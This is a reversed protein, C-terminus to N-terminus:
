ILQLKFCDFRTRAKKCIVGSNKEAECVGSPGAVHMQASLFTMRFVKIVPKMVRAASSLIEARTHTHM